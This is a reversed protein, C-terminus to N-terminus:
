AWDVPATTKQFHCSALNHVTLFITTQQVLFYFSPEKESFSSRYLYDYITRYITLGISTNLHWDSNANGIIHVASQFRQSDSEVCWLSNDLS